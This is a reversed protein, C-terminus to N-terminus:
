LGRNFKFLTITNGCSDKVDQYNEELLEPIVAVLENSYAQGACVGVVSAAGCSGIAAPVGLVTGLAGIRGGIANWLSVAHMALGWSVVSVCARAVATRRFAIDAAAQSRGYEFDERDRVVIGEGLEKRRMCYLNAANGILVSYSAVLGRVIANGNGNRMLIRRLLSHCGFSLVTGVLFASLTGQM